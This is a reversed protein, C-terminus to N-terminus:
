GGGVLVVLTDGDSAVGVAVPVAIRSSWEEMWRTGGESTDLYRLEASGHRRLVSRWQSCGPSVMVTADGGSARATLCVVCRELWGSPVPCWSAFRASYRDGAFRSMSDADARANAISSRLLREGNAAEDAITSTRALAARAEVLADLVLRAGLCAATGLTLAFLLEVLTFAPRTAFRDARM